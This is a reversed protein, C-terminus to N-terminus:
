VRPDVEVAEQIFHEMCGSERGPFVGLKLAAIDKDSFICRNV